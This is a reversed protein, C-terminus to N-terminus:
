QAEEETEDTWKENLYDENHPNSFLRRRFLSESRKTEREFIELDFLPLNLAASESPRCCRCTISESDCRIQASRVRSAVIHHFQLFFAVVNAM